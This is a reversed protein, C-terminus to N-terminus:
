RNASGQFPADIQAEPAADIFPQLAQCREGIATLAPFQKMEVGFRRANYIQPILCAEFVSPIQTYLYDSSRQDALPELAALGRAIWQAAWRRRDAEDAGFDATLKQLLSLNQIPAIDAAIVMDASLVKARLKPEEPILAPGSITNEIYDIIALSQTLTTGDELELVPVYGQFNRALHDEGRHVNKKLDIPIYQYAAGKLALAIRVRYSASSRWYGYLKIM